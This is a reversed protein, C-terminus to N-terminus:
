RLMLLDKLPITVIREDMSEGPNRTILIGFPARNIPNSIFWQLGKYHEAKISNRYKVEIPIRQDGITIVFDIEPENGKAPLHALDLGSISSFLAGVVSEALYGAITAIDQNNAENTFEIPIHEQLWSARLGHDALCIKPDSKKKKLRIELPQVLRILLTDSLFKLYTRVRQM